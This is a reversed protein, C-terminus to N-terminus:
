THGVTWWFSRTTLSSLEISITIHHKNVCYIAYCLFLLCCIAFFYLIVTTSWLNLILSRILSDRPFSKCKLLFMDTRKKVMEEWTPRGLAHQLNTVSERWSYNFIKRFVANYAVRLKNQQQPEVIHIMETAHTLIPVCHAEMLRLMVIDDSRGEVRLISNAACYFKAITERVFCGFNRGSLLTVGLLDMQWGMRNRGLQTEGQSFPMRRKRLISKQDKQWELPCGM